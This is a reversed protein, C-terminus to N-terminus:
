YHENIYEEGLKPLFREKQEETGYTYIPWMVLSSQVSMTSRYASDIRYCVHGLLPHNVLYFYYLFRKREKKSESWIGLGISVNESKAM